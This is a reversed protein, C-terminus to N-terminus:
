TGDLKIEILKCGITVGFQVFKALYLGPQLLFHALKVRAKAVDVTFQGSSDLAGASRERELWEELNL